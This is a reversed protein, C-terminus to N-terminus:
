IFIMGGFSTGFTAIASIKIIDCSIVCEGYFLLHPLRNTEVANTLTSIIETQHSVDTLSKPRYKEVWPTASTTTTHTSSAATMTSLTALYQLLIGDPRRAPPRGDNSKQRSPPAFRLVRGKEEGVCMSPEGWYHYLYIIYIEAVVLIDTSIAGCQLLLLLLATTGNMRSSRSM